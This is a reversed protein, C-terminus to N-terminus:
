RKAQGRHFAELIRKVEVGMVLWVHNPIPEEVGLFAHVAGLAAEPVVYKKDSM